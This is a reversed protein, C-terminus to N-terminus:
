TSFDLLKDIFGDFCGFLKNFEDLVGDKVAGEGINSENLVELEMRFVIADSLEVNFSDTWDNFIVPTATLGFFSSIFIGGEAKDGERCGTQVLSVAKALPNKVLLNSPVSFTCFITAVM